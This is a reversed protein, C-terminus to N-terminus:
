VYTVQTASQETWTSAPTAADSYATGAVSVDSWIGAGATGDVFAVASGADPEWFLIPSANISAATESRGSLPATINIVPVVTVTGPIQAGVSRFPRFVVDNTASGAINAAAHRQRLPSISVTSTASFDGALTLFSVFYAVTTTSAAQITCDFGLFRALDAVTTASANVVSTASRIRILDADFTSAPQFVGALVTMLRQNYNGKNYLGKNYPIYEPM